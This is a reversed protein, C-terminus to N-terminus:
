KQIINLTTSKYDVFMNQYQKLKMRTTKLNKENTKVVTKQFNHQSDKLKKVKYAMQDEQIRQSIELKEEFSDIFDEHRVLRKYAGFRPDEEKQEM